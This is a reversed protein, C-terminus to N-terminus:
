FIIMRGSVSATEGDSTRIRVRYPYIGGAVKEGNSDTRDWIVPSLQYGSSIESTKIVRVLDGMLNFVEVTIEMMADPKNHELTISTSNLFPNPYNLLTTIIFEEKTRVLFSLSKESSNNYNDWVKL